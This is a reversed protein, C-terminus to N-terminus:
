KDVRKLMSATSKKLSSHIIGGILKMLSLTGIFYFLGAVTFLIGSLLLKNVSDDVLTITILVAGLTIIIVGSVSLVVLFLLIAYAYYLKTVNDPISEIFTIISKKINSFYGLVSKEILSSIFSSIKGKIHKSM